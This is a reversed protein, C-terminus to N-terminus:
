RVIVVENESLGSLIEVRDSSVIGLQINVRREQNGQRVIVSPANGLTVAERPLWLVDGKQGLVVKIDALDGLELELGGADYSIHYAGAVGSTTNAASTPTRTVTGAIPQDSHRSFVIEVPQGTNIQATSLRGLDRGDAVSAVLEQRASDLLNMLPTGARVPFGSSADIAIVDGAFPAYLRRGEIEAEIREIEGEGAALQKIMQPDPRANQEAERLEVRARQVNREAQAIAFADPGRLLQELEAQAVAVDAEAEQIAAIENGFATDYAIKARALKDEAMRLAARAVELEAETEENADKEYAAVARAYPGQVAELEQTALRFDQEANTKVASFENRVTSLNAQAQQLTARAATIEAATAPVKAKALEANAEDLDIRAREVVLQGAQSERELTVQDQTYTVRAQRLQSELDGLDLEALLQGAEVRQGQSVLLRQVIGDQAFSLPLQMPSIRGNLVLEDIIEGRQVTYTARPEVTPQPTATPRTLPSVPLNSTPTPNVQAVATTDTGAGSQGPGFGSDRSCGALVLAGCLAFVPVYRRSM